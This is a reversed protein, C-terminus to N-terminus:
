RSPLHTWQTLTHTGGNFVPVKGMRPDDDAAVADFRQVDGAAFVFQMDIPGRQAPGPAAWRAVVSKPSGADQYLESRFVNDRDPHSSFTAPISDRFRVDDQDGALADYAFTRGAESWTLRDGLRDLGKHGAFRYGFWLYYTAYTQSNQSGEFDARRALPDNLAANIGMYPRLLRRDDRSNNGTGGNWIKHPHWANTALFTGGADTTNTPDHVGARYPYARKHDLAYSQAAVAITHLHTACVAMEAHYVAQDMAPMLLALLVVIITIVALLEVLTFGYRIAAPPM